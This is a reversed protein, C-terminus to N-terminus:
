APYVGPISRAPAGGPHCSVRGPRIKVRPLTVITGFSGTHLGNANLSCSNAAPTQALKPDDPADCHQQETALLNALKTFAKSFANLVELSGHLFFILRGFLLLLCWSRLGGALQASM